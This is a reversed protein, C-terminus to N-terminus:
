NKKSEAIAAIEIQKEKLVSVLDEEKHAIGRVNWITCKIISQKKEKVRLGKFASNFGM